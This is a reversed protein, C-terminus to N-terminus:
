LNKIIPFIYVLFLFCTLFLIPKSTSEPKYGFLKLYRQFEVRRQHIDLEGAILKNMQFITSPETTPNSKRSLLTDFASGTEITSNIMSKSNSYKNM